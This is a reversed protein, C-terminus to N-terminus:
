SMLVELLVGSSKVLFTQKFNLVHNYKLDGGIRQWSELTIKFPTDYLDDYNINLIIVEIHQIQKIKKNNKLDDILEKINNYIINSNIEGYSSNNESISYASFRSDGDVTYCLNSIWTEASGRDYTGDPKKIKITKGLKQINKLHSWWFNGNYMGHKILTKGKPYAVTIPIQAINHQTTYQNGVITNDALLKVCDEWKIILNHTLAKRWEKEFNETNSSGKAHAYLIYANEDLNNIYELNSIEDLTEQEYGSDVEKCVNFKINKENLYSKVMERNEKTGVIGINFSYINNILNSMTLAEIHESVPDKWQGDAWIHYFHYIKNSM